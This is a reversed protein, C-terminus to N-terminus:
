EPLADEAQASELKTGALGICRVACLLVYALLSLWLRLQYARVTPTPTLDAFLGIQCKKTRNEREGASAISGSTSSPRSATPPM